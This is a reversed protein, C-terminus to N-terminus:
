EHEHRNEPRPEFGLARVDGPEALSLQEAPLQRAVSQVFEAIDLLEADTVRDGVAGVMLSIPWRGPVEAPDVLPVSVAAWGTLNWLTGWPTWATQALFNLRPSLASFTNPAPPACALTPNIVVDLDRWPGSSPDVALIQEVLLQRRHAPIERGRDRLWSTLPTLTGPLDACRAALFESFLEFTARPYPRPAPALSEVAPHTVLLSAVAATSAAIAPDVASASHFPANTYGLRLGRRTTLAGADLGYARRTHALDKAILGQATPTFGGPAHTRDHAPKLGVLGCCAAPIRISGGGDTAHAVDVLGRAVATAAGGSSGGVMMATNLPNVPQDVGVPETYAVTGFEATSSAGVLSAGANLLATAASDTHEAVRAQHCSGFSVTEGAVQHLDKLLVEQGALPLQAARPDGTGAHAHEPTREPADAAGAATREAPAGAGGAADGRKPSSYVRAVGLQAQSLGTRRMAEELRRHFDSM